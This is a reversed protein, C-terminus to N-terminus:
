CPGEGERLDRVIQRVMQRADQDDRLAAFLAVERRSTGAGECEPCDERPHEGCRPCPQEKILLFTPRNM